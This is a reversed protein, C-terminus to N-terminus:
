DEQPEGYKKTLIGLLKELDKDYFGLNVGKFIDKKFGYTISHPTVGEYSFNEDKKDYGKYPPVKNTSRIFEGDMETMPTGWLVGRFGTIDDQAYLQGIFLITLITVLAKM